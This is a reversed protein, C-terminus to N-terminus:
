SKMTKHMNLEFHFTRMEDKKTMNLTVRKRSATSLAYRFYKFEKLGGCETTSLASSQLFHFAKMEEDKRCVVIASRRRKRSSTCIRLDIYLVFKNPIPM